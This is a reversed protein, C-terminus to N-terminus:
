FRDKLKLASTWTRPLLRCSLEKERSLACRTCWSFTCTTHVTPGLMIWFLVTAYIILCFALFWKLFWLKKAGGSRRQVATSSFHATSIGHYWWWIEKDGADAWHCKKTNLVITNSSICIHGVQPPKAGTYKWLVVVLPRQDVFLLWGNCFCIKVCGKDSSKILRYMANSPTVVQRQIQYKDVEFGKKM